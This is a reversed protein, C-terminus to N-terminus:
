KVQWHRTVILAGLLGVGFGAVLLILLLVVFSAGVLDLYVGDALDYFDSLVDLVSVDTDGDSGSDADGSSDGAADDAVEVLFSATGTTVPVAEVAYAPSTFLYMAAVVLSALLTSTLFRGWTSGEAAADPSGYRRSAM